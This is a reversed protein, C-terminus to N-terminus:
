LFFVCYKLFYNIEIYIFIDAFVFSTQLVEVNLSRLVQQNKLLPSTVNTESPGQGGGFKKIKAFFTTKQTPFIL